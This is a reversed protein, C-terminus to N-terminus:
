ENPPDGGPNSPVFMDRGVMLTRGTPLYRLRTHIFRILVRRKRGGPGYPTSDQVDEDEWVSFGPPHTYANENHLLSGRYM